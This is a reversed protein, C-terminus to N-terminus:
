YLYMPKNLLGQMRPRYTEPDYFAAVDVSRAKQSPADASVYTYCGDQLAVMSGYNGEEVLDMAVHAYNSAVMVDVAVPPGSRILYGLHQWM